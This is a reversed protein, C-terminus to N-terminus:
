RDGRAPSSRALAVRVLVERETQSIGGRHLDAIQLVIVVAKVVKALCALDGRGAAKAVQLPHRPHKQPRLITTRIGFSGRDDVLFHHIVRRINGQTQASELAPQHNEKRARVCCLCMFCM